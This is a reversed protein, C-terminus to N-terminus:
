YNTTESSSTLGSSNSIFGLIQISLYNFYLEIIFKLCTIKLSVPGILFVRAASTSTHYVNEFINIFYVKHYKM